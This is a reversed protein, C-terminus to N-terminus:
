KILAALSAATVQTHIELETGRPTIKLNSLASQALTKRPEAMQM